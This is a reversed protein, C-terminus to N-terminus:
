IQKLYGLERMETSFNKEILKIIEQNSEKSWQNKPGLNFFKVRGATNKKLPAEKFLGKGELKKLYEFSTTEIINKNKEISTDFKLYKNLFHIIKDMEIKPDRILNEYKILLLNKKNRTWSRYHDNWKGLLTFMSPKNDMFSEEFNKGNGILKPSLMFKLSNEVSLSYHNSISNIVNRPDRVVYIVARTNINNTFDDGDVTYKGQHTKFFKIKNDLNIKDQAFIWNKKIEDFNSFDKILDKFYIKEPFQRIKKLLKFDFIGDDSYVLASIISRLWTNGSKPYSAIWIIM